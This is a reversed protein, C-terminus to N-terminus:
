DTQGTPPNALSSARVTTKGAKKGRPTKYGDVQTWGRPWGMLLEVWEPNLKPADKPTDQCGTGSDARVFDTLTVGPKM